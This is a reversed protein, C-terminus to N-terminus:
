GQSEVFENFIRSMGIRIDNQIKEKSNWLEKKM